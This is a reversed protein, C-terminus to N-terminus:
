WSVGHVVPGGSVIALVIGDREAAGDCIESQKAGNRDVVLLRPDGGTVLELRHPCRSLTKQLENIWKKEIDSLPPISLESEDTFYVGKM